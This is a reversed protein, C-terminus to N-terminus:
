IHEESIPKGIKMEQRWKPPAGDDAWYEDMTVIKDDKLKIFSTVHFFASRDKPYVRTATIIM